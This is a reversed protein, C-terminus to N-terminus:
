ESASAELPLIELIDAIVEGVQTKLFNRRGYLTHSESLRLAENITTDSDIRFFAQPNSTHYLHHTALISGLPCQGELVQEQAEKPFLSLHIVIAGFEVTRGTGQLDLAVLRWLAEGEEWRKLVRLRIRDRHFAELTPTM